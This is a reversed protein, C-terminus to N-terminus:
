LDLTEVKRNQLWPSVSVAEDRRGQNMDLHRQATLDQVGGELRSGAVVESGVFPLVREHASPSSQEPQRQWPPQVPQRRSQELRAPPAAQALRDDVPSVVTPPRHWPRLRTVVLPAGTPTPLRQAIAGSASVVFHRGRSGLAVAARRWGLDALPANAVAVLPKGHGRVPASATASQPTPAKTAPPGKSSTRWFAGRGRNRMPVEPDAEAKVADSDLWGSARRRSPPQMTPSGEGALQWASTGRAKSPPPPAPPVLSQRADADVAEEQDSDGVAGPSRLGPIAPPPSPVGRPSGRGQWQLGFESLSPYGMLEPPDPTAVSKPRPPYAPSSSSWSGTSSGSSHGMAQWARDPTTSPALVSHSATGRASSRHGATGCSPSACRSGSSFGSTTTSEGVEQVLNRVLVSIHETEHDSCQSEELEVSGISSGDAPVPAPAPLVGQFGPSVTSSSSRPSAESECMPPQTKGLTRLRQLCASWRRGSCEEEAHIDKIPSSSACLRRIRSGIVSCRAVAPESWRSVAAVCADEVRRCRCPCRGWVRLLAKRVVPCRFCVLYICIWFGVVTAIAAAVAQPAHAATVDSDDAVLQLPQLDGDGSGGGAASLLTASVLHAFIPDQAILLPDRSSILKLLARVVDDSSPGASEFDRVVLSV